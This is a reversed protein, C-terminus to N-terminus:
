CQTLPLAFLSVSFLNLGMRQTQTVMSAISFKSKSRFASTLHSCLMLYSYTTISRAYQWNDNFLIFPKQEILTVNIQLPRTTLVVSFIHNLHYKGQNCNTVSQQWVQGINKKTSLTCTSLFLNWVTQYQVSSNENLLFKCTFITWPLAEEEWM